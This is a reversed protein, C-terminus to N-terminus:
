GGYKGLCNKKQQVHVCCGLNVIERNIAVRSVTIDSITRPRSTLMAATSMNGNVSQATCSLYVLNKKSMKSYVCECACVYQVLECVHFKIYSCLSCM